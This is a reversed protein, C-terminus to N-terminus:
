PKWTTITGTRRVEEMGLLPSKKSLLAEVGPHFTRLDGTGANVPAQAFGIQRFAVLLLLVVVCAMRPGWKSSHFRSKKM